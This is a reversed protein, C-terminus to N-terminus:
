NEMAYVFGMRRKVAPPLDPLASRPILFTSLQFLDGFMRHRDATTRLYAHGSSGGTGIKRGIMREVMLAHRHRWLTMTEDIDMLLSLLRFPQQVAPMDRYVTIFLAAQVAKPSLRWAGSTAEPEFIAAFAGLAKDLGSADRERREAPIAADAKVKELDAALHKVVAARYAERFSAGGWDLFPTRALWNDLLTHITPHSRAAALTGRDATSLREEVTKDDFHVRAGEPLGLRTEILRFQLSQFGSAPILYDRFDLFDAPRMTELVDLQAVLLKLIERVRALSHVIRALAEDAVPNTSFDQEIRDLEHLTLKFWLEYAQHIIIFLMEDHVPPGHKASEPVQLSLLRDVQLYDGYYIPARPMPPNKWSRLRDPRSGSICSFHGLLHIDVM